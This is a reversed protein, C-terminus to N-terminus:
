RHALNSLNVGERDSEVEHTIHIKGAGTAKKKNLM